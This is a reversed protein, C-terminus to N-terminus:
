TRRQAWWMLQAPTGIEYWGDVPTMYGEELQGCITCFGDANNHSPVGASSPTNAYGSIGVPVGDCRYSDAVTYVLAGEKKIPLPEKDTGIVQYFREVGEQRGNLLYALEGSGVAEPSGLM